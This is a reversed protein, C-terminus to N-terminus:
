ILVLMEVLNAKEPRNVQKTTHIEMTPREPYPNSKQNQAQTDCGQRTERVKKKEKKEKEQRKRRKDQAEKTDLAVHWLM